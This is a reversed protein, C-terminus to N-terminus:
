TPSLTIPFRELTLGSPNAIIMWGEKDWDGLVYRKGNEPANLSHVQPRHTHGHIMTNTDAQYLQRTVEEADVDMIYTAKSTSAEQSQKRLGKAIALREPISKSLFTRQWDPNRVLNRFAQYEKDQICLSDGHMLLVPGKENQFIYGDHILTAGVDNCFDQGILFDRNGHMIYLALGSESTSKLHEKVTSILTSSADDGIWAEFFDGLIYLARTKKEPNQCDEELFRFFARTIDPRSEHLHLDSIFITRM